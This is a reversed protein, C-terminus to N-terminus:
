KVKLTQGPTLAVTDLHNRAILEDVVIRPDRGPAIVRAISWLTDGGHVQVSSVSIPGASPATAAGGVSAHAVALLLAGVVAVLMAIAMVGRRTLRLPAPQLDAVLASGAATEVSALSRLPRASPFLETVRAANPALVAAAASDDGVSCLHRRGPAVPAGGTRRARDPIIVVPPFESAVSM